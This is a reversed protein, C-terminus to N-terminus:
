NNSPNVPPVATSQEIPVAPKTTPEGPKSALDEWGVLKWVMILTRREDFWLGRKEFFLAKGKDKYTWVVTTPTYTEGFGVGSVSGGQPGWSGNVSAVSYYGKARYDQFAMTEGPKGWRKEVASMKNGYKLVETSSCGVVLFALFVSLFLMKMFSASEIRM